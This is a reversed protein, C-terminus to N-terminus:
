LNSDQYSDSDHNCIGFDVEVDKCESTLHVKCKAADDADKGHAFVWDPEVSDWDVHEEGDFFEKSWGYVGVFSEPENGDYLVFQM